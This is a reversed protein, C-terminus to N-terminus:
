DTETGAPGDLGFLIDVRESPLVAKLVAEFFTYM